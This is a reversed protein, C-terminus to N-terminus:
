PSSATGRPASVAASCQRRHGRPLRRREHRLRRHPRHSGTRPRESAGGLAGSEKAPLPIRHPSGLASRDSLRRVGARARRHPGRDLSRSGLAPSHGRGLFGALPRRRLESRRRGRAGLVLCRRRGLPIASGDRSRAWFSARWAERLDRVLPHLVGERRPARAVVRVRDITAPPGCASRASSAASAHLAALWPSRSIPTRSEPAGGARVRSGSGSPPRPLLATIISVRVFFRRM